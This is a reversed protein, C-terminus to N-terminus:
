NPTFDRWSYKVKAIDTTLTDDALAAFVDEDYVQAYGGNTLNSPLDSIASGHVVVNGNLSFDATLGILIGWVDLTGNAHVDGEVVIILPTDRSGLIVTSGTPFSCDGEVWILPIKLDTLLVGNITTPPGALASCDDVVKGKAKARAKIELKTEAVLDDKDSDAGGPPPPGPIDVGFIFAFPSYPFDASPNIVIDDGINGSDSLNETCGCVKWADTDDLTDMCIGAAEFEGHNCTQWSAGGGSTVSSNVWVSVAVGPGGGNPNPVITFNGGLDVSPSMLPPIEGPTLLSTKAYEIQAVAEGTGDASNGLGVATTNDGIKVLYSKSNVLVSNVSSTITSAAVTAYVLTPNVLSAGVAVSCPFVSTLGACPIWGATAGDHLSPNARLFSAAQELGAEANAFAEKHRVENGSIRQDLIGVRTAFLAILTVGILLMVTVLLTAAGQQNNELKSKHMINVKFM